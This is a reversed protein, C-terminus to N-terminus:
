QEVRGAIGARVVTKALEVEAQNQAAEASAREAPLVTSLKTEVAQKTAEAASLTGRRSEVVNELKEIERRAVVHAIAQKTRLEDTAQEYDAKADQLQGEAAAIDARAMVMKADIEKLQRRAVELAAEQRSSDLRFIPQGKTVDASAGVYVE